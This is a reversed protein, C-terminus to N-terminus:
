EKKDEGGPKYEKVLPGFTRMWGTYRLPRLGQQQMLWLCHVTEDPDRDVNSFVLRAQVQFPFDADGPKAERALKRSTLRQQDILKEVLRDLKFSRSSTQLGDRVSWMLFLRDLDTTGTPLRTYNFTIARIYYDAYYEIDHIPDLELARWISDAALFFTEEAQQRQAKGEDGPLDTKMLREAEYVACQGLSQHLEHEDPALAIGKRYWEIGAAYQGSGFYTNGLTLEIRGDKLRAIDQSEVWRAQVSRDLDTYNAILAHWELLLPNLPQVQLTQKIGALAWDRRGHWLFANWCLKGRLMVDNPAHRLGDIAVQLCRTQMKEIEEPSGGGAALAFFVEHGWLAARGIATERKALDEWAIWADTTQGHELASRIEMLSKLSKDQSVLRPVPAHPVQVVTGDAKTLAGIGSTVAAVASELASILSDANPKGARDLTVTAHLEVGQGRRYRVISATPPQDEVPRAYSVLFVYEAGFTTAAHELSEFKQAPKIESGARPLEKLRLQPQYRETRILSREHFVQPLYELQQELMMRLGAAGPKAWVPLGAEPDDDGDFAPARLIVAKYSREPVSGTFLGEAPLPQYVEDPGSPKADNPDPKKETDPVPPKTEQAAVVAVTACGAGFIAAFLVFALLTRAVRRGPSTQMVM